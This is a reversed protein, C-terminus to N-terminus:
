LVAGEWRNITNSYNKLKDKSIKGKLYMRNVLELIDGPTIIEAM